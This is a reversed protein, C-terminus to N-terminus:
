SGSHWAAVMSELALRPRVNAELNLLCRDIARISRVAQRASALDPEEQGLSAALRDRWVRQLLSIRRYTGDRDKGFDDAMRFCAVLQDYPSANVVRQAESLEARRSELLSRDNAARFAWGPSGGAVAAITEADDGSLGSAQLARSIEDQPSSGFRVVSCRSQITPLIPELDSALLLIVAYSPPEELTKLFAEQATEQMTEADSVIAIKWPSETPRFSVTSSVERVTAVNLTLNRSKEGDREIQQRLGFEVVDPFVGRDIRRCVGCDDCSNANGSPRNPCCLAKALTRAALYKGSGEPGALIWAHRPGGRAAQQLEAVASKQGWVPWGTAPDTAPVLSTAPM